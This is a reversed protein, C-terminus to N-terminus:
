SCKEESFAQCEDVGCAAEPRSLGATPASDSRAPLLPTGKIVCKRPLTSLTGWAVQVWFRSHPTNPLLDRCTYQASALDSQILTAACGIGPTRLLSSLVCASPCFMPCPPRGHPSPPLGPPLPGCRLFHCCVGPVQLPQFSGRLRWPPTARSGGQGRVESGLVQSLILTPQKFGNLGAPVEGVARPSQCLSLLFDKTLAGTLGWCGAGVRPKKRLQSRGACHGQEAQHEM